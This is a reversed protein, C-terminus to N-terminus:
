RENREDRPPEFVKLYNSYCEEHFWLPPSKPYYNPKQVVAGPRKCQYCQMDNAEITVKVKQGIYWGDYENLHISGLEPTHTVDGPGWVVTDDRLEREFVKKM